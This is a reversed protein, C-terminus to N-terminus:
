ALDEESIYRGNSQILATFPSTSILVDTVGCEADLEPDWVTLVTEPDFGALIEILERATM